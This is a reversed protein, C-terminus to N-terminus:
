LPVTAPRAAPLQSLPLVSNLMWVNGAYVEGVCPFFDRPHQARFRLLLNKAQVAHKCPRLHCTNVDKGCESIHKSLIRRYEWRVAEPSLAAGVETESCDPVMETDLDSATLKKRQGTSPGIALGWAGNRMGAKVSKPDHRDGCTRSLRRSEQRSREDLSLHVRDGYGVGGHEGWYADVVALPTNMIEKFAAVSTEKWKDDALKKMDDLFQQFKTPSSAVAEEAVRKRSRSGQLGAPGPQSRHAGPAMPRRGSSESGIFAKARESRVREWVSERGSESESSEESDERRLAPSAAAGGESSSILEPESCHARPLGQCAARLLARPPDGAGEEEAAAEEPAEETAAEQRAEGDGGAAAARSETEGEQRAEAPLFVHEYLAPTGSAVEEDPPPAAAEAPPAAAEGPKAEEARPAAAQRPPEEAPPAAAEGPKAEEARPAAAAPVRVAAAAAPSSQAAVGAHAGSASAAPVPCWPWLGKPRPLPPRQGSAAPATAAAAASAVAVAAPRPLPPVAAVAASAGGSDPGEPSSEAESADMVRALGSAFAKYIAGPLSSLAHEAPPSCPAEEVVKAVEDENTVIFRMIRAAQDIEWNAACLSLFLNILVDLISQARKEMIHNLGRVRKKKQAHGGKGRRRRKGM